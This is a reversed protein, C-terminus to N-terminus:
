SQNTYKIINGDEDIYGIPKSFDISINVQKIEKEKNTDIVMTTVFANREEDYQSLYITENTNPDIMTCLKVLGGPVVFLANADRQSMCIEMKLNSFTDYDNINTFAIEKNSILSNFAKEYMAKAKLYEKNATYIWGEQEYFKWIPISQNGSLYSIDFKEVWKKASTYDELAYYEMAVLFNIENCEEPTKCVKAYEKYNNIAEQHNGLISFSVSKAYWLVYENKVKLRDLTLYEISSNYDKLLFLIWGKYLLYNDNEPELNLALNISELSKNYDKGWFYAIARDYDSSAYRELNKFLTKTQEPTLSSNAVVEMTEKDFSTFEWVSKEAFSKILKGNDEASKQYYFNSVIIGLVFFVIAVIIGVKTSARFSPSQTWHRKLSWKEAM